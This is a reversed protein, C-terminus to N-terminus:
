CPLRCLDWRKRAVAAPFRVRDAGAGPDSDQYVGHGGDHRSDDLHFNMDGGYWSCHPHRARMRWHMLAVVPPLRWGPDGGAFGLKYPLAGAACLGTLAPRWHQLLIRCAAWNAAGRHCYIDGGDCFGAGLSQLQPFIAGFLLGVLTWLQWNAMCPCVLVLSIGTGWRRKQMTATIHM